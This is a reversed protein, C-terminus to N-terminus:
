GKGKGAGKGKSDGGKGKGKGKGEVGKGESGKGKGKGKGDWWGKGADWGGKGGQWGQPNWATWTKPSYEWEAPQPVPHATPPASTTRPAPATTASSRSTRSADAKRSSKVERIEEEDEEGEGETDEEHAQIERQMRGRDRRMFSETHTDRGAQGGSREGGSNIKADIRLWRLMLKDVEEGSLEVAEPAVTVTAGGQLQQRDFVMKITEKHSEDATTVRVKRNDRRVRFPRKGTEITILNELEEETADMPLGDLVLVGHHARKEAEEAM